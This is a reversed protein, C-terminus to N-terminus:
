AIDEVRYSLIGALWTVSLAWPAQGWLALSLSLLCHAALMAAIVAASAAQAVTYCASAFTYRVEFSIIIPAAFIPPPPLEAAARTGAIVCAIALGLVAGTM